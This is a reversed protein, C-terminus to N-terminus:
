PELPQEANTPPLQQARDLVPSACGSLLRSTCQAVRPENSAGWGPLSAQFFPTWAIPRALLYGGSSRSRATRITWSDPRRAERLRPHRTEREFETSNRVELLALGGLLQDLSDTSGARM